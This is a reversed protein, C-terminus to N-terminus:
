SISIVNASAATTPAVHLFRVRGGAVDLDVVTSTAASALGGAMGAILTCAARLLGM